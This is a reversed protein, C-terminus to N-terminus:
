NMDFEPNKAKISALYQKADYGGENWGKTECYKQFETYSKPTAVTQTTAKGGNGQIKKATWGRTEVEQKLFDDLSIPSQYSDLMPVGGKHIVNDKIEVNSMVISLAEDKKIGLDERLTPLASIAKARRKTEEITSKVTELESEKTKLSDQLAKIANDKETLKENPELKADALISTKLETLFTEKDKGDFAEKTAKSIGEDYKKKGHNDLLLEEKDKTLFRGEPLELKVEQEDSIAKALVDAKIGTMVAISDMQEKSLM